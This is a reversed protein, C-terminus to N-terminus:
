PVGSAESSPARKHESMAALYAILEDIVEGRNPLAPDLRPMRSTPLIQAPDDLWARLWPRGRVEVPNLPTNLEPGVTGGEGNITHCRSCYVRFAAYGALVEATSDDPPASHPFRERPRIVDVGVLQYPWGYDGEERLAADDLNDWVLYFPSLDIRKRSGSEWKEISFDARGPREFALLARHALVRAVPLTPQYGDRCTFLLEPESRWGEGYIGDLVAVLPIATFEVEAQEYPEFVRVRIPAAIERLAELGVSRVPASRLSFGLVPERTTRAALLTLVGVGFLTALPWRIQLSPTRWAALRM